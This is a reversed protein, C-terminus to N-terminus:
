LQYLVVPISKKLDAAITTLLMSTNKGYTPSPNSVWKNLSLNEMKAEKVM